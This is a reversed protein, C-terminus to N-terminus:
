RVIPIINSLKASNYPDTVQCYILAGRRANHSVDTSSHGAKAKQNAAGLTPNGDNGSSRPPDM